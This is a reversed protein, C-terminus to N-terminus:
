IDCAVLTKLTNTLVKQAATHKKWQVSLKKGKTVFTRDFKYSTYQLPTASRASPNNIKNSKLNYDWNVIGDQFSVNDDVGDYQSTFGVKTITEKTVAPCKALAAKAAIVARITERHTLIFEELLSEAANIEARTPRGSAFQIGAITVFPKGCEAAIMLSNNGNLRVHYDGLGNDNLQEQCTTRLILSM